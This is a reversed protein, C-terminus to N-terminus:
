LMAVHYNLGAFWYRYVQPKQIYSQLALRLICKPNGSSLSLHHNRRAYRPSSQHPPPDNCAPSRRWLYKQYISAMDDAEDNLQALLPLREYRIKQDQHGKIFRLKIESLQSLKHQIEILVDWDPQLPDVITLDGEIRIAANFQPPPQTSGTGHLSQLLGKRGSSGNTTQHAIKNSEFIKPLVTTFRHSGM